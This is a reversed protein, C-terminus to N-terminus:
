LRVGFRLGLLRPESLTFTNFNYGSIVNEDELNKGYLQLFWRDGPAAYTLNFDTKSYGPQAYQTATSFDSVV